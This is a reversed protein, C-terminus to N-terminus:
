KYEKSQTLSLSIGRIVVSSIATSVLWVIDEQKREEFYDKETVSRAEHYSNNHSYLKYCSLGLLADSIIGTALFAFGIGNPELALQGTGSLALNAFKVRQQKAKWNRYADSYYQFSETVETKTGPKILLEKTIPKYFRHTLQLHYTGPNLANFKAPTKGSQRGNLTISAGAPASSVRLEAPLPAYQIDQITTDRHSTFFSFERTHYGSREVKIVHEGPPLTLIRPNGTVINKGDLSARSDPAIGTFRVFSQKQLEINVESTKMCSVKVEQSIPFYGDHKVNISYRGAPVSDLEVPIAHEGLGEIAVKVGSITAQIRLAGFGNELIINARTLKGSTVQIAKIGVKLGSNVVIEHKGADIDKFTTPTMRGTELGDISVIGNEPESEVFLIGKKHREAFDRLSKDIGEIFNKVYDPIESSVLEFFQTKYERSRAFLIEGTGVDIIRTSIATIGNARSIRGALMYTVGLLQGAEILCSNSNCAGTQQFGQEKLVENMSAREIIRYKSYEIMSSRFKDSVMVIENHNLGAGEFDLIGVNVEEFSAAFVGITYLATILFSYNMRAVM